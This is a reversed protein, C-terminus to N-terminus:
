AVLTTGQKLKSTAAWREELRSYGFLLSSLIRRLCVFLPMFGHHM